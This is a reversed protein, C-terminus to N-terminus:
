RLPVQPNAFRIVKDFHVVEWTRRDRRRRIGSEVWQERARLSLSNGGRLLSCVNALWVTDRRLNRWATVLRQSGSTSTVSSVCSAHPVVIASPAYMSCRYSLPLSLTDCSGAAGCSKDKRGPQPFRRPNAAVNGAASRRASACVSVPESVATECDGHSLSRLHSGASQDKLLRHARGLPRRGQGLRACSHVMRWCCPGPRPLVRSRRRRWLLSGTTLKVGCWVLSSQATTRGM